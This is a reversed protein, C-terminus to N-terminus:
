YEFLPIEHVHLLLHLIYGWSMINLNSSNFDGTSDVVCNQPFLYNLDNEGGNVTFNDITM